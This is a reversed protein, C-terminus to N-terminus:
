RTPELSESGTVPAPPRDTLTMVILLMPCSRWRPSPSAPRSTWGRRHDVRCPHSRPHPGWQIRGHQACDRKAVRPPPVLSPVLALRAPWDFGSVAGLLAGIALLHWFECPDTVVLVTLLATAVLALSRPPAVIVKRRDVRDLYAGAIPGAILEPVAQAFSM